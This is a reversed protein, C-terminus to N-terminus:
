EEKETHIIKITTENVTEAKISYHLLYRLAVVMARLITEVGLSGSGEVKAVSVYFETM